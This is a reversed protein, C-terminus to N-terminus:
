KRRFIYLAGVVSAAITFVLKMLRDDATEQGKQLSANAAAQAAKLNAEAADARSSAGQFAKGMAERILDSAIVLGDKNRELALAALDDSGIVVNGSSQLHLATSGESAAVREDFTQVTQNSSSKSSSFLGM